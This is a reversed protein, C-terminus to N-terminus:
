ATILSWQKCVRARQPHPLPFTPTKNLVLQHSHYMRTKCWILREDYTEKLDWVKGMHVYMDKYFYTESCFVYVLMVRMLFPRSPTQLSIFGKKGLDSVEKSCM